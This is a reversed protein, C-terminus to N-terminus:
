ADHAEMMYTYEQEPVLKESDIIQNMISWFVDDEGEDVEFSGAIIVGVEKGDKIIDYFYAYTSPEQNYFKALVANIVHYPTITPEHEWYLVAM